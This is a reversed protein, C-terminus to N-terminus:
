IFDLVQGWHSERHSQLSRLEAATAAESFSRLPPENSIWFGFLFSVGGV